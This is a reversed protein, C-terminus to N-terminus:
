DCLRAKSAKETVALVIFENMSVGHADAAAELLTKFEPTVRANLRIAAPNEIKPRGKSKKETSM